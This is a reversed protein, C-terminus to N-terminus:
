LDSLRSNSLHSRDEKVSDGRLIEVQFRRQFNGRPIEASFRRAAYLPFTGYFDRQADGRPDFIKVSDGGLIEDSFRWYSDAM